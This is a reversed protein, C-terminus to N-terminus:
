RGRMDRAVWGSSWAVAIVLSWLALKGVWYWFVFVNSTM